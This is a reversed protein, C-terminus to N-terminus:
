LIQPQYHFATLAVTFYFTIFRVSGTIEKTMNLHSYHFAWKISVFDLQSGQLTARMQDHQKSVSLKM